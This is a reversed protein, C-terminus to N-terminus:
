LESKRRSERNKSRVGVRVFLSKSCVRFIEWRQDQKTQNKCTLSALNLKEHFFVKKGTQILKHATKYHFDKRSRAIKQHIKGERKALKRRAKSGYKGKNKRQSAKTLKEQNSRLPKLSSLKSGVSTALYIDKDLVADLGISNEWTPQIKDTKLDPISKDELSLNIWWGDAKNILSVQKIQSRNPILRHTRARLLGIKPILIYLWKSNISSFKLWSDDANPFNM